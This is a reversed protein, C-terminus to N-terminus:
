LGGGCHHEKELLAVVGLLVVGMNLGGCEEAIEWSM